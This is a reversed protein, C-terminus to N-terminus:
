NDGRRGVFSRSGVTAYAAGYAGVTHALRADVAVGASRAIVGSVGYANTKVATVSGVGVQRTRMARNNLLGLFAGALTRGSRTLLRAVDAVWAANAGSMDVAFPRYLATHMRAGSLREFLEMIYEREEFAWFMPGMAGMDMCVASVTLLHNLVRSLEDLLIRVYRVGATVARQPACVAEVAATFAHEQLLNAVYDMRDMYPLAQLYTRAEMLKESGRHLLGFQTDARVIVEGELQLTLKLIGHAAPHQPGFALVVSKTLRPQGLRM